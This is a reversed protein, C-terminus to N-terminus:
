ALAESLTIDLLRGSTPNFAKNLNLLNLLRFTTVNRRTLRKDCCSQQVLFLMFLRGTGTMNVRVAFAPYFNFFLVGVINLIANRVRTLCINKCTNFTFHSATFILFGLAFRLFLDVSVANTKDGEVSLDSKGHWPLLKWCSFVIRWVFAVLDYSANQNLQTKQQNPFQLYFCLILSKTCTQLWLLKMEILSISVYFLLVCVWSSCLFPMEQLCASVVKNCECSLNHWTYSTIM